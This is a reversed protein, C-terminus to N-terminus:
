GSADRRLAEAAEDSPIWIVTEQDRIAVCSPGRWAKSYWFFFPFGLLVVATGFGKLVWSRDGTVEAAFVGGGPACITMVFAVMALTQGLKWRRHCDDDFPLELARRRALFAPVLLGPLGLFLLALWSLPPIRRFEVRTPV